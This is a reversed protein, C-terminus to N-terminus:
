GVQEDKRRTERLHPIAPLQHSNGVFFIYKNSIIRWLNASLKIYWRRVTRPFRGRYILKEDTHARALPHFQTSKRKTMTLPTTRTGVDHGSKANIPSDSLSLQIPFLSDRTKRKANGGVTDLQRM